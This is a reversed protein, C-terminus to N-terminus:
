PNSVERFPSSKDFERVCFACANKFSLWAVDHLWRDGSSVQRDYEIVCWQSDSLRTIAVLHKRIAVRHKRLEMNIAAVIADDPENGWMDWAGWQTLKLHSRKVKPM